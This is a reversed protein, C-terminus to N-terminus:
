DLGNQSRVFLLESLRRDHGYIDDRFNVEGEDDVWASFYVVFVPIAKKLPVTMEKGSLKAKRIRTTTWPSNDDLLFATLEEKKEVRICGHSFTRQEEDFLKKSPTDHLYISFMNPFMFKVSGLANWPGPLQRIEYKFNEPDVTQWHIANTPVRQPDAGKTVVEMHNRDLYTPDKQIEPIIEDRAISKPVVWYPNFVVSNIKGAFVLTGSTAKGVIVKSEIVLTDDHYAYLEYAPINVAIFKGKPTEPLWRCREMTVVLQRIRDQLSVNLAAITAKDPIGTTALGHRHQFRTVATALIASDIKLTDALDKLHFLRSALRQMFEPSIDAPTENEDWKLSDWPVNKELDAYQRLVKKLRKYIPHLPDDRDLDFSGSLLLSDLTGNYIRRVAPIYWELDHRLKPDIGSYKAKAYEYYFITLEIDMVKLEISDIQPMDSMRISQYRDMGVRSKELDVLVGETNTNQLLDLFALAHGNLGDSDVWAAAFARHSYFAIVNRAVEPAVKMLQLQRQVNTSDLKYEVVTRLLSGTEQELAAEQHHRPNKCQFLSLVVMWYLLRPIKMM